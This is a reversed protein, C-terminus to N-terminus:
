GAFRAQSEVANWTVGFQRLARKYADTVAGKATEHEEPTERRAFACGIDTKPLCGRVSVRVSATYVGTALQEGSVDDILRLAHYSVGDILEPGWQDSGFLRNAQDMTAWGELYQTPRGDRTERESVLEPNLPEALLDPTRRTLGVGDLSPTRRWDMLGRFLSSWAM